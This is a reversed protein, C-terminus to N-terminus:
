PNSPGGVDEMSRANFQQPRLGLPTGAAAQLCPICTAATVAQKHANKGTAAALTWRKKTHCTGCVQDATWSVTDVRPCGDGHSQWWQTDYELAALDVGWARARGLPTAVDVQAREFDHVAAAM